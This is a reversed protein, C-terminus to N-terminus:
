FFSTRLINRHSKENNNQASSMSPARLNHMERFIKRVCGPMVFHFTTRLLVREGLPIAVFRCIKKKTSSCDWLMQNLNTWLNCSICSFVRNSSQASSCLLGLYFLIHGAQVSSCHALGVFLLPTVPLSCFMVLGSHPVSKHAFPCLREGSLVGFFYM